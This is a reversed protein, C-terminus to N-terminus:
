PVSRRASQRVTPDAFSDIGAIPFAWHPDALYKEAGAPTFGGNQKGKGFQNPILVNIPFKAASSNMELRNATFYKRSSGAIANSKAYNEINCFFDVSHLRAFNATFHFFGGRNARNNKVSFQCACFKPLSSTKEASKHYLPTLLFAKRRSSPPVRLTVSPAQTVKFNQYTKNDRM